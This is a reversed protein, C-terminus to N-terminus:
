RRPIFSFRRTFEADVVRWQAGDESLLHRGGSYYTTRNGQSDWFDIVLRPNENKEAQGKTLSMKETRLWRWFAITEYPDSINTKIRPNRRVDDLALKGRTLINWGYFYIEAKVYKHEAAYGPAFNV